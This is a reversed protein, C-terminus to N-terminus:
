QQAITVTPSNNNSNNSVHGVIAKLFCLLPLSWTWWRGVVWGIPLDGQSSFNLQILKGYLLSCKEVYRTYLSTLTIVQIKHLDSWSQQFSTYLDESSIPYQDIFGLPSVELRSKM